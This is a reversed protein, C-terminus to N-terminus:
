RLVRFEFKLTIIFGHIMQMVQITYGMELLASAVTVMLLQQPDVLLDPFVKVFTNFDFLNYLLVIDEFDFLNYVPLFDMFCVCGYDIPRIICM